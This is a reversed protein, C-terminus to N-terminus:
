ACRAVAAGGREWGGVGDFAGVSSNCPIHYPQAQGHLRDSPECSHVDVINDRQSAKRHVPNVVIGGDKWIM